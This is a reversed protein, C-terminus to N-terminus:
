LPVYEDDELMQQLACDRLRGDEHARLKTALDRAKVLAARRAEKGAAICERCRDLDDTDSAHAPKDCVSCMTISM